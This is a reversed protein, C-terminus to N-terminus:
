AAVRVSVEGAHHIREGQPHRVRLGGGADIGLARGEHLADGALVCVDRGALADFRPWRDIFAEFGEREFTALAPLLRRLVAGLVAARGHGPLGARRLDTWAQEVGPLAEIALNLGIGIAVADGGAEVLIGGLKADDVVLDNPWKVGIRALGLDLLAEAVALGVVPGLPALRMPPLTFRRLVTLALAGGPDTRWARGRRGRGARQRDAVFVAAGRLPVPTAFAWDQTSAVDEAHRFVALEALTAADLALDSERM